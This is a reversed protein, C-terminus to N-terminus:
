LASSVFPPFFHRSVDLRGFQLGPTAYRLSMEAVLADSHACEASWPAYLQIVWACAGKGQQQVEQRFSAPTLEQVTSPGRYAPLPFLLFALACAASLAAGHYPDQAFTLAVAALKFYLLMDAVFADVKPKKVYRYTSLVALMLLARREWFDVQAPKLFPEFDNLSERHRLWAYSAVTAANALYYPSAFRRFKSITDM